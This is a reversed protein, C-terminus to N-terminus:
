DFQGGNIKGIWDADLNLLAEAVDVHGKSIALAAAASLLMAQDWAEHRHLSVADALQTIARYYDSALAEPIDPGGGALRAVEVASPLQFFSFDVPATAEGAIQVMHPVAAYSATYVDGQHRLRSWLSFWPEDRYSGRQGASAILGRLLAPVDAADGYAHQLESWHPDDLSLM